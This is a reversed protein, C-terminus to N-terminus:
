TMFTDLEGVLRKYEILEDQNKKPITTFFKNEKREKQNILIYESLATIYHGSAKGDNLAYYLNVLLKIFDKDFIIQTIDSHYEERIATFIPKLVSLLALISLPQIQRITEEHAVPQDGTSIISDDTSQSSKFSKDGLKVFIYLLDM